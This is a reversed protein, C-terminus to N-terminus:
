MTPVSASASDHRSHDVQPMAQGARRRMQRSKRVERAFDRREEWDRGEDRMARWAKLQADTPDTFSPFAPTLELCGNLILNDRVMETTGTMDSANIYTVMFSVHRTAGPFRGPVKEMDLAAIGDRTPMMWCGADESDNAITAWAAAQKMVDLISSLDQDGRRQVMREIMHRSASVLLRDGIQCNKAGSRLARSAALDFDVTGVCLLDRPKPVAACSQVKRMGLCAVRVDKFRDRATMGLFTRSFSKRIARTSAKRTKESGPRVGTSAVCEQVAANGEAIIRNAIAQALRKDIRNGAITRIAKERDTVKESAM